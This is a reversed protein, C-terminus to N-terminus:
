RLLNKCLRLTNLRFYIAFLQNVIYLVGAKKSGDENFPANPKLLGYLVNLYHGIPWLMTFNDQGWVDHLQMQSISVVLDKRDNFTKSYSEQL